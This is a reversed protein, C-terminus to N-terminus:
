AAVGGGHHAQDDAVQSMRLVVDVGVVSGFSARSSYCLTPVCPVHLWDGFWSVHLGKYPRM